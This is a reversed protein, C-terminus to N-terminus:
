FKSSVKKLDEPLEDEEAGRITDSDSFKDDMESLTGLNGGKTLTAEGKDGAEGLNTKFWEIVTPNLNARNKGNPDYFAAYVEAFWEGPSSFQYSSLANARADALYSVWTGYHDRHFVRGNIALKDSAGDTFMWPQSLATIAWDLLANIEKLQSKSAAKLWTKFQGSKSQSANKPDKADAKMKKFEELCAQHNEQLTELFMDGFPKGDKIMRTDFSLSPAKTLMAEAVEKIQDDEYQQWGGFIDIKGRTKTFKIQQDVAHGMEHRLIWNVLTGSGALKGMVPSKKNKKGSFNSRKGTILNGFLSTGSGVGVYEESAGFDMLARILGNSRKLSTFIGEGMPQGTIPNDPLVMQIRKEGYDYGSAQGLGEMKQGYGINVLSTNGSVHASPLSSFVKDIKHRMDSGFGQAIITDLNAIAMKAQALKEKDDESYSKQSIKVEIKKIDEELETLAKQDEDKPDGTMSSIELMLKIIDLEVPIFEFDVKKTALEVVKQKAEDLGKNFQPIIELKGQETFKKIDEELDSKNKTYFQLDKDIKAIENLAGNSVAELMIALHEAYIKFRALPTRKFKDNLEETTPPERMIVTNARNGFTRQLHQRTGRREYNLGKRSITQSLHMNDTRRQIVAPDIKREVEEEEAHSPHRQVMRAVEEGVHGSHRQSQREVSEEQAHSPHSQIQGKASNRQALLRLVAQNGVTRQLKLVDATNNLAPRKRGQAQFQPEGVVGLFAVAQDNEATLEEFNSSSSNDAKKNSIGSKEAAM